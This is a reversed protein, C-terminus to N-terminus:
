SSIWCRLIVRLAWGRHLTGAKQLRSALLIVQLFMDAPGGYCMSELHAGCRPSPLRASECGVNSGNVIDNLVYPNAYLAPNLFGVSGKGTAMREENIRNIIAAFIPTSCSTGSWRWLQGHQVVASRAGNASVDPYARGIRNYLGGTNGQLEAIDVKAPNPANAALSAYSKYPPTHKELYGAVAQQQYKPIPYINSFGGGSSYNWYTPFWPGFVVSEPQEDYVSNGPYMKTGGVNTLWPCTNPWAPNFVDGQPGLCGTPGDTGYGTFQPYNGVGADGSAFLLSTGQLGLKLFELCQGKTPYNTHM